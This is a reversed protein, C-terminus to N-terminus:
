IISLDLINALNQVFLCCLSLSIHRCWILTSFQYFICIYQYSKQSVNLTISALQYTHSTDVFHEVSVTSLPILKACTKGQLSMVQGSWRWGRVNTIYRKQHYHIPTKWSQSKIQSNQLIAKFWSHFAQFSIGPFENSLTYNQYQKVAIILIWYLVKFPMHTKAQKNTKTSNPWNIQQCISCSLGVFAKM